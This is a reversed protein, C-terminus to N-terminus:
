NKIEKKSHQNMVVSKLEKNSHQNMVEHSDTTLVFLYCALHANAVSGVHSPDPDGGYICRLPSTRICGHLSKSVL